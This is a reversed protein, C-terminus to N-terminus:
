HTALAKAALQEDVDHVSYQKSDVTMKFIEFIKDAVESAGRLFDYDSVKSKHSPGKAVHPPTEPDYDIGADSLFATSDAIIDEMFVIRQCSRALSFNYPVIHGISYLLFCTMMNSTLGIRNFDAAHKTHIKSLIDTFDQRFSLFENVAWYFCSLVQSKQSKRALGFFAADTGQIVRSIEAPSFNSHVSICNPYDASLENMERFFDPFSLDNVGMRSPHKFNRTGHSVYNRGSLRLMDSISHTASFGVSEIIVVAM